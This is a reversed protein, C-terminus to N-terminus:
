LMAFLFYAIVMAYLNSLLNVIDNDIFAIGKCLPLRVGNRYEHETIQNNAEDYFHGQVTAGLFSDAMCGMFGAFAICLMDTSWDYNGTSSYLAYWSVAITLSGLFGGITGMVTVGGSLGKEVEQFTVISVPPKDSLIGIEGAWTDSTSAAIAAGFLLLYLHDGTFGYLIAAIAAPGGNAFVQMHDRCGGKKQIGMSAEMAYPRAVKTLITSSVFFIILILWGSLGINWFVSTGVFLTAATGTLSLSKKQYAIKCLLMNALVILIFYWIPGVTELVHDGVISVVPNM